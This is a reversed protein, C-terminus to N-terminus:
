KLRGYGPSNFRPKQALRENVQTATLNNWPNILLPVNGSHIALALKVILEHTPFDEADERFLTPPDTPILVHVQLTSDHEVIGFDYKEMWERLQQVRKWHAMDPFDESM